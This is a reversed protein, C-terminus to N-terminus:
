SKPSEDSDLFGFEYDDSNKASNGLKKKSIRNVIELVKDQSEYSEEVESIVKPSNLVSVGDIEEPMVGEGIMHNNPLLDEDDNMENLLKDEYSTNDEKEKREKLIVLYDDLYKQFTKHGSSPPLGLKEASKRFSLKPNEKRFLWFRKMKELKSKNQLDKIKVDKNTETKTKTSNEEKEKALKAAADKKRKDNKKIIDRIKNEDDKLDKKMMDLVDNYKRMKEPFKKKYMEEFNYSAEPHMSSSFFIKVGGYDEKGMILFSNPSDMKKLQDRIERKYNFTKAVNEADAGMEGLLINTFSDRVDKDVGSFTQSDSVTSIGRGSSRVTALGDKMGFSLQRKHGEPKFPTLKRIEPFVIAVPCKLFRKNKIIGHLLALVTFDIIKENDSLYNNLFVHYHEQDNFIKKFDLNLPCSQKSLFYDRKFPQFYRSSESVSKMTGSGTELFFNSPDSKRSKDSGKGKVSKQIYQLFGYMGDDNSINQSARIMASITETEKETEVLLGFEKDGLSKFPITYLEMDPLNKNRPLNFTFPHYLKVKKASPKKGIKQLHELHYQAEPEFMQFAFECERKPDAICLVLYGHAQLKEVIGELALGKGYGSKAFVVTQENPIDGYDDKLDIYTNINATVKM